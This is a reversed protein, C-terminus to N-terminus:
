DAVVFGAYGAARLDALLRDAAARDIGTAAYVRWVTKGSVAASRIVPEFGATRLDRALEDANERVQFSGAQVSFTAAPASAGPEAAGTGAAGADAQAFLAPTAAEVVRSRTGGTASRAIAAEPSGPFLEALRSAAEAAGTATGDERAAVYLDWAAALRACPDDSASLIRSADRRAEELKGALREAVVALPDAGPFAVARASAAQYAVLDGMALSLRMRRRLLSAPGGRNWAELALDAAEADLGALEFM